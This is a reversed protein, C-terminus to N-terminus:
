ELLVRICNAKSKSRCKWVVINNTSCSSGVLHFEHFRITSFHQVNWCTKYTYSFTEGHKYHGNVFYLWAPKASGLWAHVDRIFANECIFGQPFVTLEAFSVSPNCKMFCFCAYLMYAIWNKLCIILYTSLDPVWSAYKINASSNKNAWLGERERM